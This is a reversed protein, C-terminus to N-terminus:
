YPFGLSPRDVISLSSVLPSHVCIYESCDSVENWVIKGRCARAQVNRSLMVFRSSRHVVLLYLICLTYRTFRGHLYLVFSFIHGAHLALILDLDTCQGRRRM